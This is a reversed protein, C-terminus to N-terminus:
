SAKALLRVRPSELGLKAVFSVLRVLVAVVIWSQTSVLWIFIAGAFDLVMMNEGHDALSLYSGLTEMLLARMGAASTGSTSRVSPRPPFSSLNKILAIRGSDAGQIATTSATRVSTRIIDHRAPTARHQWVACNARDPQANCVHREM